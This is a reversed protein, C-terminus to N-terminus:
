HEITFYTNTHFLTKPISWNFFQKDVKQLFFINIYHYNKMHKSIVGRDDETLCKDNISCVGEVSSINNSLIFGAVLDETSRKPMPNISQKPSDAPILLFDDYNGIPENSRLGSVFALLVVAHMASKQLNAKITVMLSLSPISSQLSTHSPGFNGM